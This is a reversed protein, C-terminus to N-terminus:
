RYDGTLAFGAWYSPHAYMKKVLLQAKRLSEAKNEAAYNRYFHKILVATSIDSVRWLSSVIAHTGAYIFARNLGVLEDGGTIDGLGTQCASLTVLDANINLAFVESVQFSGDQTEDATLKLSSFLPNVPDFEGHSAIHIIQYEGIHKQIWSETAKERTLVDIESFDWKISNAEMEALPLDYNLSKLDPNGMALVKVKGGKEFKRAFTFKLISASPTYFLPHKEVLYGEASKLAAFSVYHLHGHPVISLVRKDKFFKEAPKVVLDYLRSSQDDVPALQQLRKRHDDILARLDSEAVPTRAVEIKGNVIVWAILEKDTVLYEVLAVDEGLLGYLEKLGLTEVTIFSSVEPSQAKIEILLDQYRNREAVLQEKMQKIAAEDSTVALSEGLERIKQKLQNSKEYLNRSVENKLNIKQNGLLDIFSRSKARETFNFAEEVKGQNLLLLVLEKYVGQKDTLFGNQFEEVKIAARMQDVVEVASKYVEAAENLRNLQALCFGEGRLARWLVEQIRLDAAIKRTEQFVPIAKGWEKREVALHGRELMSKVLNTKDGIEGSLAVAQTIEQEAKDLQGMRLYSMGMNRHTYGQGWKSKLRIDGELAKQFYELSQPYKKDKRYVLGINNYATAVDLPSHIEQALDLSRNLNALARTSDNLTWYILGLTNYIFTMQRKDGRSEAIDLAQKQFKFANQYDGQFWHTNAQYLLAKPLAPKETQSDSLSQAEQYFKLAQPFDGMKESVLGLELLTEVMQDTQKLKKFLENAESFHTRAAGYNSLRLYYIRGIRRLERGRNLDEGIESNIKLSANFAELAKDYDLANEEVVGLASYSEALKDLIENKQYIALSKRLNEVAKPYDEARSYLIGLFYVAEAQDEPNMKKEALDVLELQYRIAKKYDEHNYAAQALIKYIKPADNKDPLLGMLALAKEFYAIASLWNKAQFAKGGKEVNDRFHKQAFVLKEKEDMGPFGYLRYNVWAYSDPHRKMLEMQALRMAEAPNGKRFQGYFLEAFEAHTVPDVPGFHLLISPFGMFDLGHLLPATPSVGIEPNFEVHNLAIFNADLTQSFLNELKVHEFRSRNNSVSIYSDNLRGLVTKSDVTVVGSNEMGARFREVSGEGDILNVASAFRSATAPFLKDPFEVALLRTNYLNKRGQSGTFQALSTLQVVPVREVLSKGELMMAGWPLLDFREGGLIFVTKAKALPEKVVTLMAESLVKLDGSQIKADSHSLRSVIEFLVGTVPIQASLIESPTLLWVLISDHVQQYKILIDGPGLLKRVTEVPPVDASFLAALDRDDERMLAIFEQYDNLLKELEREEVGERSSLARAAYSKVEDYYKRRDKNEFKLPLEQRLSILAQQTGKESFHLAESFKKQEFLLQTLSLYLEEMMSRSVANEPLVPFRSLSKEAELLLPLRKVKEAQLSELYKFQWQFRLPSYDAVGVGARRGILYRALGVNQKLGTELNRFGKLDRRAATFADEFYRLSKRLLDYEKRLVGSAAIFTDKTIKKGEKTAAPESFHLAKYHYIIGLYNKLYVGYEPNGLGKSGDIRASAEEVLALTSEMEDRLQSLPVLECRTLLVRAINAANVAMGQRSELQKGLQYSEKFFEVSRDYHGSQYHYNGIQNLIIAKELAAPVNKKPDLDKPILALKKQFYDIARDFEGFDGFIRGIYNFILKQEGAKDFGSAARSADADLGTEINIDILATKEKEKKVVGHKELDEIAQFYHGLALNLSNASETERNLSYLNNAINRLARSLSATNGTSRHLDLTKSFYEVAKAYQGGDQYTLAIRDNIEAMRKLDNKEAVLKLAKKFLDVAEAAFGCKFASEGFRQYYISERDAEALGLKGRGREKYYYYAAYYNKLLYHGNGLNLLLNDRNEPDTQDDNLALAIQYEQLAKELHGESKRVREKQEYIWGLTQHFYVEQSDLILAEGVEREAADLDPPMLYTYALGLSYHDVAANVPNALRAKYFQIVQSIQKLRAHSEIYGRHAAVTEPSFDILKFFTKAALKVDGGKMEWMGKEISKRIYGKRASKINEGVVRSDETIKRYIGLSAEFNEEEAHIKALAFLAVTKEPVDPFLDITRQYAEKALLNENAHYYLEGIRNQVAAALLPLSKHEVTLNYLSSVKKELTPQKEFLELIERIAKRTWLDMDYYDRVVQVFAHVLKEHDGVTAYVKSQSFSAEAATSRQGPYEAIVKKYLQLAKDSEELAFHMNGKELLARSVVPPSGSDRAIVKDLRDVAGRIKEKYVSMGERKFDAVELLLLQIESLGRYETADPHRRILAAFTEKAHNFYGLAEEERAALYRIRVLGKEGDFEHTLNRYAMLCSYSAMVGPCFDGIAQLSKGYDTEKSLMGELMWIDTSNKRTSTFYLKKGVVAPLLDYNANDTLQRLKASAGWEVRWIGPRDEITVQGDFNTDEMYRTFYIFKGDPSWRPSVDISGSTVQVRKNNTLDQVWLSGLSNNAHSVFALCRGDPSISPNMGEVELVPTRAKTKIEIKFIRKRNSEPTQSTYYIWQGDPSWVPDSDASNADTLRVLGIEDRSESDDGTVKTQNLALLYVDGRPDTRNSVFAISKGDPSFAPSNDEASHSTLRRDPLHVAPDLFKLWLDLNGSQDSVYALLKGDASVSPAFDQGPNSTIQVPENFQSAATSESSHAFLLFPILFVSFIIRFFLGSKMFILLM